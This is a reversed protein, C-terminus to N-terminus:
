CLNASIPHNNYFTFSTCTAPYMHSPHSGSRNLMKFSDSHPQLCKHLGFDILKIDAEATERSTLIVNGASMDRYIIGSSHLYAMVNALQVSWRCMPNPPVMIASNLM